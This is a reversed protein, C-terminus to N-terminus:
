PWMQLDSFIRKGFRRRNWLKKSRGWPKKGNKKRKLISKEIKRTLYFGPSKFSQIRGFVGTGHPHCSEFRCPRGGSGLDPADALEAMDAIINLISFFSAVPISGTVEVSGINRAVSQAM